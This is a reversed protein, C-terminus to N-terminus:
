RVRFYKKKRFRLGFCKKLVAVQQTIAIVDQPSPCWSQYALRLSEGPRCVCLSKMSVSICEGGRGGDWAKSAECGGTQCSPDADLAAVAAPGSPRECPQNGGGGVGRTISQHNISPAVHKAQELKHGRAKM